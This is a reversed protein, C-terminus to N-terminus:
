RTATGAPAVALDGTELPLPGAVAIGSPTVTCVHAICAVGRARADEVASAYAPDIDAAVRLRDCDGRQVLYLLVARDGAEAM